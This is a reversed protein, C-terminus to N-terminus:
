VLLPTPDAIGALTTPLGSDNMDEDKGNGVNGVVGLTPLLLVM